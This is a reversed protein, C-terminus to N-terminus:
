TVMKYEQFDMFLVADVSLPIQITMEERRHKTEQSAYAGM